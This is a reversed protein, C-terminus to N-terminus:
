RTTTIGSSDGVLALKSVGGEAVGVICLEFGVGGIAATTPPTRPPNSSTNVM